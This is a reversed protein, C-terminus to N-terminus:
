FLEERLLLQFLLSEDAADLLKQRKTLSAWIWLDLNIVRTRKSKARSVYLDIGMDCIALWM